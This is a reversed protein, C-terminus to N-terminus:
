RWSDEEDEDWLKNHNTLIESGDTIIYDNYIGTGPINDFFRLSMGTTM